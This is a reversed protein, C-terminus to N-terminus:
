AEILRGQRMRAFVQERTPLTTVGAGEIVFSATANAFPAAQFPDGTEHLRILFATTFTDGAGTPDVEVAQYAPFHTMAGDRYVNVGLPGHTVVALKALGIMEQIVAQNHAVDEESFVLVDARQLVQRATTWPTFHVRGKEDWARMWGQPTVGILSGEFCDVIAPDVEQALPGLLVIPTTEWEHPLADCDIPAAVARLYQTRHGSAYINEFTTTVPSPLRHILADPLTTEIDYDPHASTVVGVRLGLKSAVAAAYTATGGITYGGPLVDQTVHGVVLFDPIPM